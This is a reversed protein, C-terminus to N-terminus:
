LPKGAPKNGYFSLGGTRGSRWRANEAVPRSSFFGCVEEPKAGAEDEDTGRNNSCSDMVHITLLAILDQTSYIEDSAFDVTKVFKDTITM